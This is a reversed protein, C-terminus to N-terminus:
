NVKEASGLRPYPEVISPDKFCRSQPNLYDEDYHDCEFYFYLKGKELDKLEFIYMKVDQNFVGTAQIRRYAEEKSRAAGVISEVNKSKVFVKNENIKTVLFATPRRAKSVIDGDFLDSFFIDGAKVGSYDPAKRNFAQILNFIVAFVFLIVIGILIKKYTEM